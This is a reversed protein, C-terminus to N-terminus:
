EVLQTLEANNAIRSPSSGEKGPLCGLTIGMYWLVKYQLPDHEVLPVGNLLAMMKGPFRTSNYRAAILIATTM